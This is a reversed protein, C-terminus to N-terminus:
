TRHISARSKMFTCIYLFTSNNQAFIRYIDGYAYTHRNCKLIPFTLQIALFTKPESRSAPSISDDSEQVFYRPLTQM